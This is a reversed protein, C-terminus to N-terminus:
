IKRKKRLKRRFELRREEIIKSEVEM